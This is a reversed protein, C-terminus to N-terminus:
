YFCNGDSKHHTVNDPNLDETNLFNNIRQIAVWSQMLMTIVMPFMNIPGRLISFLSLAVFIINANIENNEHVFVFTVFSVITVIFPAMNFGFFIYANLIASKKIINLERERIEQVNNQFSPEWAYLKLVKMGALIENMFKIRNDKAKMQVTQYLKLKNAIYGNVPIMLILVVLGTIAAVGLIQWLFYICIAITIPGSWLIHLYATM